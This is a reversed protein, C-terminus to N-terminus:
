YTEARGYSVLQDRMSADQVQLWAPSRAHDSIRLEDLAGPFFRGPGSTSGIYLSSTSNHTGALTHVPGDQAGDVYVRLYAGDFTFAVHHWSDVPWSSVTTKVEDTTVDSIQVYLGVAGDGERNVTLHPRGNGGWYFVDQREGGSEVLAAPRFWVSYTFAAEPPGFGGAFLYDDVGDFDLAGAIQGPVLDQADMGGNPTAHHGGASDQIEDAAGSPVQSFHWAGVYGNQWVEAARSNGPGDTAPDCRLWLRARDSAPLQPLLVWVASDGGEVWREIEFALSAGSGDDILELHEATAGCFSDDIRAPTLQLLLPLDDIVEATPNLVELPCRVRSGVDPANVDSTTLDAAGADLISADAASTDSGGADEVSSDQGGSDAAAGDRQSTDAPLFDRSLADLVISDAAVADRASADRADSVGVDADGPAICRGDICLYGPACDASTQCAFSLSELAPTEVPCAAALAGLIVLGLWLLVPSTSAESRSPPVTGM